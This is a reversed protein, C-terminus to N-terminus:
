FRDVSEWNFIPFGNNISSNNNYKWTLNLKNVFAASKMESSSVSQQLVYYQADMESGDDNGTLYYNNEGDGYYNFAFIGGAYTTGTTMTGCYICNKITGRYHYGVIGGRYM